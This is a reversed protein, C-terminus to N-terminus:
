GSHWRKGKQLNMLHGQLVYKTNLHSKGQPHFQIECLQVPLNPDWDTPWTTENTPACKKRQVSRLLCLIWSKETDQLRRWRWRRCGWLSGCSTHSYCHRPPRAGQCFRRESGARTTGWRGPRQWEMQSAVRQSQCPRPLLSEAEVRLSM